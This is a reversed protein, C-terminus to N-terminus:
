LVRTMKVNDNRENFLQLFADMVENAIEGRPKLSQYFREYTVTHGDLDV